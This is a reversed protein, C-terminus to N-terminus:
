FKIVYFLGLATFLVGLRLCLRGHRKFIVYCQVAACICGSKPISELINLGDYDGESAWLTTHRM